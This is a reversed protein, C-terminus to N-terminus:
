LLTYSISVNYVNLNEPKTNTSYFKSIVKFQQLFLKFWLLIITQSQCTNRVQSGRILSWLHSLPDLTCLTLKNEWSGEPRSEKPDKQLESISESRLSIHLPLEQKGLHRDQDSKRDQHCVPSSSHQQAQQAAKGRAEPKGACHM